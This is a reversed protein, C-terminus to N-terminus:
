CLLSINDDREGEMTREVSPARHRAIRAGSAVVRRTVDGLRVLVTYAGPPLTAGARWEWYV